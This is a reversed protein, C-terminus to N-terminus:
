QIAGMKGCGEFADDAIRSVSDPIQVYLLEECDAFARSGITTCGQPIIIVQCPLGAFAEEEITKLGSPLKYVTVDEITETKTHSSDLKCKYEATLTGAAENWTYVPIDWQHRGDKDVDYKYVM